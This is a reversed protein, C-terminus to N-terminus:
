AHTTTVLVLKPTKAVSALTPSPLTLLFHPLATVLLLQALETPVSVAMSALIPMVLLLM